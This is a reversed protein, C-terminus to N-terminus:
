LLLRAKNRKLKMLAVAENVAQLTETGGIAISHRLLQPNECNPKLKQCTVKCGILIVQCLCPLGAESQRTRQETGTGTGTGCCVINM